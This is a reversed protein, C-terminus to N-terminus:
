VAPDARYFWEVTGREDRGFARSSWRSPAKAAPRRRYQAALSCAAIEEGSAAGRETLLRLIEHGVSHTLARVLAENV